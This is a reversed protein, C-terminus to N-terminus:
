NWGKECIKRNWGDVARKAGERRNDHEGSVCRSLSDGVVVIRKVGLEHFCPVM